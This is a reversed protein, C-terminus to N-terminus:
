ESKACGKLSGEKVLARIADSRLASIWGLGPYQKL